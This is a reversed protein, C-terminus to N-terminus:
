SPQQNAHNLVKQCFNYLEQMTMTHKSVNARYTVWQVNNELYGVTSDIRDLSAKNIDCISDGTIACKKNQLLYLDWLYSLSVNFSINRKIAIRKIREYKGFSLEGILGNKIKLNKGRIIGSCKSCAIAKKTNYFESANMYRTNGCNCEVLYMLSRNNGIIPEGIITWNKSKTGIPILVRRHLAVCKKCRTTRKRVLDSGCVDKETGCDCKCKYYLHGNKSVPTSDIVEWKGFRQGLELSIGKM